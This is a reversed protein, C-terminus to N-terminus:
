SSQRLRTFLQSYPAFEHQGEVRIKAPTSADELESDDPELAISAGRAEAPEVATSSLRDARPGAETLTRQRNTTRETWAQLAAYHDEVVTEQIATAAAAPEPCAPFPEVTGTYEAALDGDWGVEVLGEEMRIPPKAPFLAPPHVISQARAPKEIRIPEALTNVSPKGAAAIPGTSELAENSFRAPQHDPRPAAASHGNTSATDGPM